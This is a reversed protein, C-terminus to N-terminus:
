RGTPAIRWITGNGDETMLLAGDHAVAVGVPRGWVRDDDVVFGTLFDRTSGDPVGNKLPLRVLKYGTRKSRNWSGHLAVFANGRFEAPFAAKAGPPPDYFVLGLPASHPQLLVDPVTVRAALDPREGKHRPDEHAGIYYWPWGYFRQEHVSTVYDAPLNDGLGDRENTACWPTDSRPELVLTVCNRLGTAYLQPVIGNPSFMLVAARNEESGWAAGPGRAADWAAPTAETLAGMGEADNSGSGVSVYMRQEDASFAIDRTSHGGSSRTLSKVMVEPKGPPALDGARYPFRVISNGNAVYLYAPAPGPPYFAMGFPQDLGKAFVQDVAPTAAGDAARLVRIRDVETEAVFIDGNPAVRIQRPNTLGHTFETVAFGPPVKLTAGNPRAVVDPPNSASGNAYPPPADEPRILRGVGPADGRWDGYAAAGTLLPTEAAADAVAIAVAFLMLIITRAAAM